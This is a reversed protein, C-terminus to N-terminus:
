AAIIAVPGSVTEQPDEAAAQVAWADLGRGFYSEPIFCFGNWGWKEGWSNKTELHWQGSIKKIGTGCMCNHVILGDALYTHSLEVEYNFVKGSYPVFFVSKVPVLLYDDTLRTTGHKGNPYWCIYHLPKANPFGTKSATTTWSNFRVGLFSLILRVQMSLILSTTALQHRTKYRCGDADMIGSLLKELSWGRFIWGPIKKNSSGVGFWEVFSRGLSSSHSRVRFSTAKDFDVIIGNKGRPTIRSSIGLKDKLISAVKEATGFKRTAIEIGRKNASGNGIFYGFLWTLDDDTEVLDPLSNAQSSKSKVWVPMEVSDISIRPMALYDGPRIDGAKVWGSEFRQWDKYMPQDPSDLVFGSTTCIKVGQKIRRYVFVPHDETVSLSVNGSCSIRALNGNFYRDFVEKVEHEEGDHGYLLDGVIIDQAKKMDPGIIITDPLVCHGGGSGRLDPIVGDNDPEFARGIDIGFCVPFKLQVASAIADFSPCDYGEFAKFRKATEYAGQKIRNKQYTAYEVETDLCVGQDKLTELGDSVIAGRDQGGNILSYLFWPSLKHFTANSIARAYTLAMVSAEAVCAGIGDQDWIDLYLHRMSTEKWESRPINQEANWQPLACTAKRPLCALIRQHGGQEIYPLGNDLWQISM